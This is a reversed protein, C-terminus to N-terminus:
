ADPWRRLYVPRDRGFHYRTGITEGMYHSTEVAGASFSRLVDDFDVNIRSQDAGWVNASGAGQGILLVPVTAVAGLLVRSFFQRRTTDPM